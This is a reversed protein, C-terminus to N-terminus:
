LHNRVQTVLLDLKYVQESFAKCMKKLHIGHAAKSPILSESLYVINMM